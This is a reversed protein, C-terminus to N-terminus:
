SQPRNEKASSKRYVGSDFEGHYPMPDREDNYRRYRAYRMIFSGHEDFPEDGSGLGMESAQHMMALWVRDPPLVNALKQDPDYHPDYFLFNEHWPLTQLACALFGSVLYGCVLGFFAGAPKQIQPHFEIETRAISNTLTRLAALTLGFIGVLFIYDEYGGMEVQKALPEWFNFAILGAGVVNFCMILATFLGELFFAWALVVMVLITLFAPM